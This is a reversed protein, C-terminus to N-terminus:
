GHLAQLLKTGIPSGWGTCADWGPGAHYSGNSGLVVDNFLGNGALSGYLLPNLYGVPKGLSQNMLAVLGAWLPAVASTGGIVMNKGDVRVQYGSNPDADGAVDPVGRGSGGASGAYPPVGARAQWAPLPFVTSVGGGTASSTPDEDWVVESAIKGGAAVLKTGGCGLAYPSSAPFDVHPQGDSSSDASGSDGAAVCVTVGMAAAAQFAADFQQMAQPTWASEAAGWSISIVSPKHTTDHIATTIADLFGQDTNPAFYVAITAAPAVAAAVEIDLMVEGDASQANTPHNKGGDVSVAVVKPVALGLSKFYTKIDAPKFGGGLEILAICQGAGNLGTPFQYLSALQPPTFSAGAARAQHGTEDERRKFHADAQPRNDLGFVGEVIGALNAPVSIAGTRGRYSGGDHEYQQLTVGFAAGMAAATGSLVVSRRAADSAVVSLQNAAAFATVAAIDDAQAGHRAAYDERSLYSRSKPLQDAHVGGSALAAAGLKARLRLTVEIREDPHIAQMARAGPLPQRDSGPIFHRDTM